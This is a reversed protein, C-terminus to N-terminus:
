RRSREQNRVYELFTAKDDMISQYRGHSMGGRSNKNHRNHNRSNHNGSRGGHSAQSGSHSGRMQNKREVIEWARLVVGEALLEAIFDNISIGEQAAQQAIKRRLSQSLEVMIASQSAGAAEGSLGTQASEDATPQENSEQQDDSYHFFREELPPSGLEGAQETSEASGKQQLVAKSADTVAEETIESSKAKSSAVRSRTKRSGSARESVKSRSTKKKAGSSSKSKAKEAM